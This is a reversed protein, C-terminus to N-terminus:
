ARRGLPEMRTRYEPVLLPISEKESLLDFTMSHVTLVICNVERDWESLTVRIDEPLDCTVVACLGGAIHPERGLLLMGMAEPSVQIRRLRREQLDGSLPRPFFNRRLDETKAM